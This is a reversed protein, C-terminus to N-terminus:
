RRNKRKGRRKGHTARVKDRPATLAPEEGDTSESREAAVSSSGQGASAGRQRARGSPPRNRRASRGDTEEDDDDGKERRAAPAPAPAPMPLPLLVHRWSFARRGYVYYSTFLAFLNSTVWYVGVGSPLALTFWVLMLPMMWTMMQQQQAQQPTPNPPQSLKQQIYTTYGSLLPVVYTRDPGGLNLWLFHQNLPVAERLFSWPYLRQSLGVLSEPSGGVMHRLAYNLAFFMAMQILLPMFCGLPNINLERYLKMTEEQRRRPDKYKKQMEQLRPQAAQMNKMSQIQRVTFPLTALRLLITFLIIALGFEGFVIKDLVILANILPNILLLNFTPGLGYVFILLVFVGVILVTIATFASIGGSRQAVPPASRPTRSM